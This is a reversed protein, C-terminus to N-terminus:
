PAYTTGVIDRGNLTGAVEATGDAVALPWNIKFSATGLTSVNATLTASVTTSTVKLNGSVAVGPILVDGTM